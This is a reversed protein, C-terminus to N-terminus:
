WQCKLLVRLHLHIVWLLSHLKDLMALDVLREVASLQLDVM